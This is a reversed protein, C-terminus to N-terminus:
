QQVTSFCILLAIKSPVHCACAGSVFGCVIPGRQFVESLIAAEGTVKGFEKVRYRHPNLTVTTVHAFSYSLGKCMRIHARM